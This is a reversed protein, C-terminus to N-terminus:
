RRVRFAFPKREIQAGQGISLELVYDGDAFGALVLDAAILAGGTGPQETTTVTVPLPQGRRDLLRASREMGAAAVAWELHLREGRRFLFEAAPQLPARASAAGRFVLPAGAADSATFSTGVPTGDGSIEVSVRPV